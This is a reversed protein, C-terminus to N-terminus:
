VTRKYEYFLNKYREPGAALDLFDGFLRRKRGSDILPSYGSLLNKPLIYNSLM